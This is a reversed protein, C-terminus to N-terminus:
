KGFKVERLQLIATWEKLLEAIQEQGFLTTGLRKITENHTFIPLIIGGRDKDFKYTAESYIINPDLLADRREPHRMKLIKTKLVNEIPTISNVFTIATPRTSDDLDIIVANNALTGPNIRPAKQIDKLALKNVRALTVVADTTPFGQYIEETSSFQENRGSEGIGILGYAIQKIRGKEVVLVVRPGIDILKNESSKINGELMRQITYLGTWESNSIDSIHYQEQTVTKGSQGLTTTFEYPFGLIRHRLRSRKVPLNNFDPGQSVIAHMRMGADTAIESMTQEGKLALSAVDILDEKDFPMSPTLLERGPAPHIRIYISLPRDSVDPM